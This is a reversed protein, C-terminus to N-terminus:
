FNGEYFDSCIKFFIRTLKRINIDFRLKMLIVTGYVIYFVTLKRYIQRNFWVPLCRNNENYCLINMKINHYQYYNAFPCLHFGSRGYYKVLGDVCELVVPLGFETIKNLIFKGYGFSQHNPHIGLYDLHIWKPYFNLFAFGIINNEDGELIFIRYRYRLKYYLIGWSLELGTGGFCGYYLDKLENKFHFFHIERFSVM